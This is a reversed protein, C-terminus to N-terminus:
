EHKLELEAYACWIDSLEEVKDFPVKLAKELVIRAQFLQVWTM